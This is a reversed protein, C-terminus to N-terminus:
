KEDNPEGKQTRKREEELVDITRKEERKPALGARWGNSMAVFAGIALTGVAAGFALDIPEGVPTPAPM